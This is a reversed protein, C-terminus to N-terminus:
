SVDDLIGVGTEVDGKDCHTKALHTMAAPDNKKVGEEGSKLM